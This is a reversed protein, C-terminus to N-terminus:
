LLHCLSELMAISFDFRFNEGRKPLRGLSILFGCVSHFKLRNAKARDRSVYDFLFYFFELFILKKLEPILIKYFKCPVVELLPDLHWEVFGFALSLPDFQCILVKIESYSSTSDLCKFYVSVAFTNTSIQSLDFSVLYNLSLELNHM